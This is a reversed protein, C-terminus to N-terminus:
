NEEWIMRLQESRARTMDELCAARIMPVISGGRFALTAVECNKDRFPLWARQADRLMIAGPVAGEPLYEADIKKLYEIARKYDFNLDGDAAQYAQWACSNMELQTVPNNCNPEQQATAPSVFLLAIWFVRNM